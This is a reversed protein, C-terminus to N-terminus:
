LYRDRYKEASKSLRDKVTEQIEKMVQAFDQAQASKREMQSIDRLELVGRPHEGYVIQFPTLGTSRNISDNYAYEAQPLISDWSGGYQQALCRLLNGLSRNTVETQGDSQPHYASSFNLNTGLRKWLTRWFHGLFKSDRDSIISRPLGHLRVVEKFFLGAISSADHTTKCPIFHSMKSFRDVVVFVSDNGAKTKPLGLVFDMSISDWPKDPIPLPTYLGANTSHGKAKQCIICSEVFKRIDSQMKPWFYFRRVQELTKDLGFHGSMGGSHKEKIINERYSGKPICLQGGKFLLGDQILFDSFETHYRGEMSQCVEYIEKFDDDLTYLDKMGEIGITELEITQVLLNRRSLADAVKNTIGKKHKISFTYAQIFEMWKMHRQNLKEQRNLYSLAQNDTFVIFEKPLLYHRWRKLSQVMAYLELDYVSYKQKAENLKESFFAIPRGEQSLVRGIARTSADCEIVFIKDFDPFKLVPEQAIKQKLLNFSDEAANTWVFHCKKGGKITDVMPASVGSFNRIFKRYFNCLGHFSKVESATTPSPWNVIAEVKSPDMKLSDKSIVFGLFILEDKVFICKELNIKLDEEHLRKLVMDLHKFNSQSLDYMALEYFWLLLFFLM